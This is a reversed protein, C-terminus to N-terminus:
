RDGRRMEQEGGLGYVIGAPDFTVESEMREFAQLRPIASSEARLRDVEACLGHITDLVARGVTQGRMYRKHAYVGRIVETDAHRGLETWDVAIKRDLWHQAAREDREDWRDGM